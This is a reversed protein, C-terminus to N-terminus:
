YALLFITLICNGIENGDSFFIKLDWIKKEAKLVYYWLSDMFYCIAAVIQVSMTCTMSYAKKWNSKKYFASM